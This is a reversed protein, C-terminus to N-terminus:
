TSSAHWLRPTSSLTARAYLTLEQSGLWGRVAGHWVPSGGSYHGSTEVQLMEAHYGARASLGVGAHEAGWTHAYAADFRIGQHTRERGDYFERREASGRVATQLTDRSTLATSTTIAARGVTVIGHRTNVYYGQDDVVRREKELDQSYQITARAVTRQSRITRVDLAVAHGSQLLTDRRLSLSDPSYVRGNSLSAYTYALQTEFLEGDYSARLGMVHEYTLPNTGYQVILSTDSVLSRYFSYVGGGRHSYSVADYSRFDSTVGLSLRRTLPRAFMVHLTQEDFVGNEWCLFV